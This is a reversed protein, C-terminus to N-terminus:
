DEDLIKAMRRAAVEWTQSIKKYIRTARANNAALLRYVAVLEIITERTEIEHPSCLIQREDFIRKIREYSLNFSAEHSAIEEPSADKLFRNYKNM